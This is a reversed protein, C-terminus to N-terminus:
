ALAARRSAGTRLLIGLFRDVAAGSIGRVRGTDVKVVSQASAMTSIGAAAALTLIDAYIMKM